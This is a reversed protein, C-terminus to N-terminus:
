AARNAASPADLLRMEFRTGCGLTSEVSMEGGLRELIANVAFMGLGSGQGEPKTTYFPDFLKQRTESSMGTGNDEVSVMIGGSRATEITVNIRGDTRGTEEVADRANVLLNMLLQELLFPDTTISPTEQAVFCDFRIAGAEISCISTEICRVPQIM